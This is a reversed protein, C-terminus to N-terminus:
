RAYTGILEGHTLIHGEMASTLESRKAGRDLMLMADLAYFRFHYHHLGSGPCPGMYGVKGADNTGELGLKAEQPIIKISSELNWALWHTFTGRPSDPDDMILVLSKADAPADAITLEPNINAGDCTYEKPVSQGDSFASSTIQM